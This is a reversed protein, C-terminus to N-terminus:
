SAARVPPGAPRRAAAPPLSGRRRAANLVDAWWALDDLLIDAAAQMAHNIPHGDQSFADHVAPVLVANRLPVMEAEIAILALHEVARAGGIQGASYAVAGAPKNRFAFSFYVSDIANKLAGPVSHNYEPTVFLFADGDAITRNWRRVKPSSYVPDAPDAVTQATEAFMPLAWDRLDLVDVAFRGDGRARSVIWGVVPDAARGPRISAVIVKLNLM